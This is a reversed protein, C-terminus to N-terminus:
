HKKGGILEVLNQPYNNLLENNFRVKEYQSTEKRGMM